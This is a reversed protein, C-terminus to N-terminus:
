KKINIGLIKMEEETLSNHLKEKAADVAKQHAIEKKKKNWYRGLEPDKLIAFEVGGTQDLYKLVNLLMSEYNFKPEKSVKSKIEEYEDYDEYVEEKSFDSSWRGLTDRTIYKMLDMVEKEDM